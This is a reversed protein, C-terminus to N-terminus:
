FYLLYTTFITFISFYAVTGTPKLLSLSTNFFLTTLFSIYSALIFFLSSLMDPIELKAVLVVRLALERLLSIGLRVLKAIVELM